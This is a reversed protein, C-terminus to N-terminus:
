DNAQQVLHSKVNAVIDQLTWNGKVMYDNAGLKILEDMTNTDSLATLLLVKVTQGHATDRLKKLLRLGDLEPIMVDLLIMDPKKELAAVLGDLGNSETEVTFGEQGLRERLVKLLSTDDEIILIKKSDM